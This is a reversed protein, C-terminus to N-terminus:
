NEVGEEAVYTRYTPCKSAAHTVKANWARPLLLLRSLRCITVLISSTVRRPRYISLSKCLM